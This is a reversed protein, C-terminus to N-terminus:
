FRRGYLIINLTRGYNSVDVYGRSTYGAVGLDAEELGKSFSGLM